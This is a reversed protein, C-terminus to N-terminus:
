STVRDGEKLKVGEGVATIVGAGDSNPVTPFPLKRAGAGEITI